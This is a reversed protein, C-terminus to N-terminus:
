ARLAASVIAPIRAWSPEAEFALLRRSLLDLTRFTPDWLPKVLPRFPGVVVSREPHDVLLGNHVVGIGSGVERKTHGPFAGWPTSGLAFCLGTWVNIGIAGYRLRAIAGQFPARHRRRTEPDALVICSLTGQVAENVFTPAAALFGVADDAEISTAALVGCFSEERLAPEDASPSVDPVLTWPVLGEGAAGLREARPYRALVRGHREEAGPYYARRAPLAALARRVADLFSDRLGWGRALVLVKPANCNFATNHFLMGAVSRAQREVDRATWRGPVVLVPTVCGLEATVPKDLLPANSGRRRRREEESSGWVLADFTGASGTLHVTDVLPHRSAREGLEPGGSVFELFGHAVLDRFAARFIPELYANVPSLKCLVVEDEVFIKHAVDLPAISAINGAGLVLAVRGPAVLGGAKDRYLRGQSPAAGPPIWVDGVVGAMLVRDALSMPHVRAITTGDAARRVLPFPRVGGCELTEALLRLGRVTVMPGSLRIEGAVSSEPEVGQAACARAVWEESNELVGAIARRLYRARDIPGVRIWADKAGALRRLAGEIAPSEGSLSM